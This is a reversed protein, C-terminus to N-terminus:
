DTRGLRLDPVPVVISPASKERRSARLEKLFGQVGRVTIEGPLPPLSSITTEPRGSDERRTVSPIEKATWRAAKEVIKVVRDEIRQVTPKCLTLFPTATRRTRERSIEITLGSDEADRIVPIKREVDSGMADMCALAVLAFVLAPFMMWKVREATRIKM